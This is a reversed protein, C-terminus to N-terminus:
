RLLAATQAKQAAIEQARRQQVLNYQSTADAHNNQALTLETSL